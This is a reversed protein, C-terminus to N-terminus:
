DDRLIPSIMPTMSSIAKWVLKSASLAPTSAARAAVCAPAEGDDRGFHAREGL